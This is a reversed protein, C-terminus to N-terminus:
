RGVAAVNAGYRRRMVSDAAGNGLTSIVKREIMLEINVDGNATPAQRVSAKAEDSMTNNVTISVQPSVAGTLSVGLRGRSDRDLPVVAEPGAEGMIGGRAFPVLGSFSFPTPTSVVTNSYASLAGAPFAAGKSFWMGNAGAMNVFSSSFQSGVAGAGSSFMGGFVGGLLGGSGNSGFMAMRLLLSTFDSVMQQVVRQVTKGLDQFANGFSKTGSMVDGVLAGMADGASALAGPISNEFFEAFDEYAKKSQAMWGTQLMGGIDLDRRATAQRIKERLAAQEALNATKQVEVALLQVEADYMAHMDGIMSSYNIEAKLARELDARRALQENLARNEEVLQKQAQVELLAREYTDLKGSKAYQQRNHMLEREHKEVADLQAQYERQIKILSSDLGAGRLQEALESNKLCLQEAASVAKEYAESVQFAAKAASEGDSKGSKNLSDIEKQFAASMTDAQEKTLRNAAVLANLSDQQNKIAGIKLEKARDSTKAYAEETGKLMDDLQKKYAQVHADPGAATVTGGVISFLSAIKERALVFSQAASLVNAKLEDIRTQIASIDAGQELANRKARELEEIKAQADITEAKLRNFEETIGSVDHGKAAAAKLAIELAQAEQKAAALGEVLDRGAQTGGSAFAEALAEQSLGMQGARVRLAAQSASDLANGYAQIIGSAKGLELLLNGTDTLFDQQVRDLSSNQKGLTGMAAEYAGTIREGSEMVANVRAQTKEQETLEATTKGLSAALKAYSQEFNVNLGITRLVETQANQIGHVMREFSESSNIGGIVAADQAIRALGPAKAIDVQSQILQTMTKRAETGAIGMRRLASVNKDIEVASYGAVKGVQQVVVGLTEYRAAALMAESAFQLSKLAGYAAALQAVVGKLASFSGTLADTAKRNNQIGQDVTRLRTASEPVGDVRVEINLKALDTAM